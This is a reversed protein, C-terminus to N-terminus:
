KNMIKKRGFGVIGILGSSLLLLTAPEPVPSPASAASTSIAATVKLVLDDHNDDGFAGDSWSQGGGDDLAIFVSNKLDNLYGLFFNPHGYGNNQNNPVNIPNVNFGNAVGENANGGSLIKFSFDLLNGATASSLVEDGSSSAPNGDFPKNLFALQDDAWFSNTWGAEYGIYEYTLNVDALAYLNASYWGVAGKTAPVDHSDGIPLSDSFGQRIELLAASGVSFSALVMFGVMVAILKKNM